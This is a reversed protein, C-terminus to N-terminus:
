EIKQCDCGDCCPCDCIAIAENTDCDCQRCNCEDAPRNTNVTV